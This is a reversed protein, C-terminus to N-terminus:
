SDAFGKRWSLSDVRISARLRLSCALPYTIRLTVTLDQRTVTANTKPGITVNFASFDVAFRTNFGSLQASPVFLCPFHNMGLVELEASLSQAMQAGAAPMNSALFSKALRLNIFTLISTVAIILKSVMEDLNPIRFTVIRRRSGPDQRNELSIICIDTDVM